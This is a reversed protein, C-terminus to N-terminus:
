SAHRSRQVHHRVVLNAADRWDYMSANWAWSRRSIPPIEADLDSVAALLERAEAELWDPLPKPEDLWRDFSEALGQLRRFEEGTETRAPASRDGLLRIMELERMWEARVQLLGSDTTFRRRGFNKVLGEAVRFRAPTFEGLLAMFHSSIVIVEPAVERLRRVEQPKLHRTM